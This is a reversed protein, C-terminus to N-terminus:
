YDGGAIGWFTELSTSGSVLFTAAVGRGIYRYHWSEAIYGTETSNAETYRQIFGYEHAHEALWLQQATATFQALTAGNPVRFDIAYGTQHESYGPRASFTDAQARGNLSVWYAYTSVQTAYSRYASSAALSVGAAAAAQCLAALDDKAQLQVTIAGNGACDVSTVLPTYTLPVIPNKKNVISDLKAPDRHAPSAVITAHAAQQQKKKAAEEAAVKQAEEAAKAAAEEAAKKVAAERQKQAVKARSAAIDASTVASAVDADLQVQYAYIHLQISAFISLLLALVISRVSWKHRKLFQWIKMGALIDNVEQPLHEGERRSSSPACVLM